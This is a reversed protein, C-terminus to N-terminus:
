DLPWLNLKDSNNLNKELLRLFEQRHMVQAGLSMLHPTPLQCDIFEFQWARMTECLYFFAIKSADTELHFMSEGFFARGLSLGYLGGVLREQQWVEFSHAFGMEHLKIYTSMMEPNIWTNDVREATTACNIIVEKFAQDITFRWPKRLSKALSRSVKFNQPRMILRPNPSWWLVPTGPSYWPFIGQQYASLVREPTLPGGIYVLGQKDSTEPSPFHDEENM